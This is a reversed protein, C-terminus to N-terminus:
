AFFVGQASTWRPVGYLTNSKVIAAQRSANVDLLVLKRVSRTFRPQACIETKSHQADGQWKLNLM